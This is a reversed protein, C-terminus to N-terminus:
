SGAGITDLVDECDYQSLLQSISMIKAVRPIFEPM